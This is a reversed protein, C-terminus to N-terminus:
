QAPQSMLHRITQEIAQYRAPKPLFDHCGAALAATRDAPMAYEAMGVVKVSKCLPHHRLMRVLDLGAPQRGNHPRLDIFVIDPRELPLTEIAEQDSTYVQLQNDIGRARLLVTIQEFTFISHQDNDIYTIHIM